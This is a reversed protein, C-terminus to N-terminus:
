GAAPRAVARGPRALLGGKRRDRWTVHGPRLPGREVREADLPELEDRASRQAPHHRELDGELTGLRHVPHHRDGRRRDDAVQRGAPVVDLALEDGEVGLAPELQGPLQGHRCVPGLDVEVGAVPDARVELVLTLLQPMPEVRAGVGAKGAGHVGMVDTPITATDHRRQPRERRM